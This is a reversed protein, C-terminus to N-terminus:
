VASCAEGEGLGRGSSEHGAANRTSPAGLLVNCIERMVRQMDEDSRAARELDATAEITEAVLLLTVRDLARSVARVQEVAEPWDTEADFMRGIGRLHGAICRLRQRAERRRPTLQRTAGGAEQSRELTDVGEALSMLWAERNM